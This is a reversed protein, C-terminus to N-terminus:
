RLYAGFKQNLLKLIQEMAGQIEEEGLTKDLARLYFKLGLSFKNEPMGKGTYVDFVGVSELYSIKLSRVAKLIDESATGTDLILALQRESGPFLPLPEMSITQPKHTFLSSLDLEAMAVPFQLKHKKQLNKPLLGLSGISKGRVFIDLAPSLHPILPGAKNEKLEFRLRLRQFMEELIGKLEFFGVPERKIKWSEEENGAMLIALHFKETLDQAFVKGIEFTQVLKNQRRFNLLGSELLNTLLDKRLCSMEESLPNKLFLGQETPPTFSYNITENLGCSSLINQIHELVEIDNQAKMAPLCAVPECFDIQDYGWIRAIEEVLDIPRELDPRFTPVTVKLSQNQVTVQCGLKNLWTLIMDTDPQHGLMRTILKLELDLIKPEPRKGHQTEFGNLRANAIEILLNGMHNAVTKTGMPDMGREFRHSADTHMKHRKAMKRIRVPDFCAVEVLVRTTQETVGSDEGGMIGALALPKKADAIVLDEEHLERVIGDLTKLTEDACASRIVLKGEVKDADFAHLPHGYLLMLYNTLDVVNNISRIGSHKLLEQLWLPSPGVKVETFLAGSYSICDSDMISIPIDNIVSETLETVKIDLATKLRLGLERSLGLIGLCDPRNPTVSIELIYDELFCDRFNTGVKIDSSLEWIGDSEDSFGLEAESCIMGESDVGRIKRPKLVGFAPLKAGMLAVPVKIGARANPAGCVISLTQTGIDVTCLRLKDAEPHSATDLIEGVFVGSFDALTPTCGEVEIGLDELTKIAEARTAEVKSVEKLWNWTLNM